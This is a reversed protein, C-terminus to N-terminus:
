SPPRDSPLMIVAESPEVAPEVMPAARTRADDVDDVNSMAPPRGRALTAESGPLISNRERKPVFALVSGVRATFRAVGAALGSSDGSALWGLVALGVIGAYWVWDPTQGKPAIHHTETTM